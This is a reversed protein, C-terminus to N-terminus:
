WSAIPARRVFRAVLFAGLLVVTAGETIRSALIAQPDYGPEMFGFLPTRESIYLFVFATAAQIMGVLTLLALVAGGLRGPLREVPALLGLGVITAGVFNLVFLTGITPISSYLEFYQQLHIAGVALLSLAGLVRSALWVRGWSLGPPRAEGPTSLPGQRAARAPARRTELRYM